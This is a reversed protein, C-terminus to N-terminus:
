QEEFSEEFAEDIGADFMKMLRDVQTRLARIEVSLQKVLEALLENSM